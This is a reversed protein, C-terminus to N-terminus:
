NEPVIRQAALPKKFLIRRDRESITMKNTWDRPVLSQVIKKKSPM